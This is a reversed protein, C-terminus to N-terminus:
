EVQIAFTYELGEYVLTAKTQGVQAPAPMEVDVGAVAKWNHWVYVESGDTMVAYLNLAVPAPVEGVACRVVEDAGTEIRWRVPALVGVGIRYRALTEGDVSVSVYRAGAELTEGDAVDLTLPAYDDRGMTYPVNYAHAFDVSFRVEQWRFADGVAYSLPAEVLRVARVEDEVASVQLTCGFTGYAPHTAEFHLTYAGATVVTGTERLDFEDARTETGNNYVYYVAFASPALVQNRYVNPELSEARIGTAAVASVTIPVELTLNAVGVVVSTMGMEAVVPTYNLDRASVVYRQTDTYYIEVEVGEISVTEGVVYASKQPPTVLYLASAPRSVVRLTMTTTYTKGGEEYSVTVSKPGVGTTNLASTMDTSVAETRVSNDSYFVHITCGAVDLSEGEYYNTKLPMDAIEIHTVTAKNCATLVASLAVVVFLM